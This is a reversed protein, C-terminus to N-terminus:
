LDSLKLTYFNEPDILKGKYYVEFHLSSLFNSNIESKGSSAIVQGQTVTDGEKVNINEIGQYVTFIDKDHEIKIINGLTDDKEIKNVKGNLVSIVEFQTDNIYDVGTNQMYTNEYFIIAKEQLDKDSEFDYYYRGISVTDSKYPRIIKDNIQKNDEGQVPKINKNILSNVSYKFNSKEVLYKNVGLITATICGIVAFVAACYIGPIILKKFGKNKM